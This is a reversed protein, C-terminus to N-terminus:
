IHIQIHMVVTSRFVEKYYFRIVPHLWPWSHVVTHLPLAVCLTCEKRAKYGGVSCVPVGYTSWGAVGEAARGGMLLPQPSRVAVTAVEIM